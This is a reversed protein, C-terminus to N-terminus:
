EVIERIRSISISLEQKSEFEDSIVVGAIRTRGFLESLELLSRTQSTFVPTNVSMIMWGYEEKKPIADQYLESGIIFPSKNDDLDMPPNFDIFDAGLLEWNKCEALSQARGVIRMKPYQESLNTIAEELQTIYFVNANIEAAFNFDDIVIIATQEGCIESILKGQESSIKFRKPNLILGDIGVLM